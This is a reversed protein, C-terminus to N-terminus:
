EWLTRNYLKNIIVAVLLARFRYEWVQDSTPPPLAVSPIRLYIQLIKDGVVEGLCSVSTWRTLLRAAAINKASKSSKQM